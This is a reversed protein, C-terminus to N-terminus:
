LLHEIRARANELRRSNIYAAVGTGTIARFVHCFHFFSYGSQSAVDEPTINEALHENIYKEATLIDEKYGM